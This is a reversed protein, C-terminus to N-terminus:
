GGTVRSALAHRARAARALRAGPESMVSALPTLETRRLLRKSRGTVARAVSRRGERVRRAPAVGHRISRRANQQRPECAAPPMSGGADQCAAPTFAALAANLMVRPQAFHACDCVPNAQHACREAKPQAGKPNACGANHRAGRGGARACRALAGHARELLNAREHAFCVLADADRAGARGAPRLRARRRGAGM